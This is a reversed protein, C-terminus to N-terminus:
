ADITTKLPVTLNQKLKAEVPATFKLRVMRDVPIVLDIPVEAKIPIDGRIPLSLTDGLVQAQIVADVHVTQDLTISQHVPVEMKIPVEADFKALLHLTDDVPISVTKDIPVRTSIVTDLSINLNNLVDATAVIPEPITVMAPQDSLLLRANVNQFIWYGAIAGGAMAALLVVLLLLWFGIAGRQHSNSIM